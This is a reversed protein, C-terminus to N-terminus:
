LNEAVRPAERVFAWAGVVATGIIIGSPIM